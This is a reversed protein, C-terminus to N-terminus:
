DNGHETLENIVENPLEYAETKGAIYQEKGYLGAYKIFDGSEFNAVWVIFDNNEDVIPFLESHWERLFDEFSRAKYDKM